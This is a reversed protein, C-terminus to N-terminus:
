KCREKKYGAKPNEPNFPLPTVFCTKLVCTISFTSSNSKNIYDNTGINYELGTKKYERSLQCDLM